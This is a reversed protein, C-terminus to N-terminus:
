TSRSQSTFGSVDDDWKGNERLLRSFIDHTYASYAEVPWVRMKMGAQRALQPLRGFLDPVVRRPVRSMLLAYDHSDSVFASVSPAQNLFTRVFSNISTDPGELEIGVSFLKGISFLSPNYQMTHVRKKMLNELIEKIKMNSIGLHRAYIGRELLELYMQFYAQSLVRAELANIKVVKESARIRFERRFAERSRTKSLSKYAKPLSFRWSGSNEDFVDLNRRSLMWDIPVINPIRDNLGAAIEPRMLMVQLFLPREEENRKFRSSWVTHKHPWRYASGLYLAYKLGLAKERVQARMLIGHIIFALRDKWPDMQGREKDDEAGFRPFRTPISDGESLQKAYKRVRDFWSPRLELIKYLGKMWPPTDTQGHLPLSGIELAENAAANFIRVYNPPKVGDRLCMIHTIILDKLIPYKSLWAHFEMPDGKPVTGLVVHAYFAKITRRVEDPFSIPVLSDLSADFSSPQYTFPTGGESVLASFDSIEPSPVELVAFPDQEIESSVRAALESHLTYDTKMSLLPAEYSKIVIAEHFETDSIILLLDSGETSNFLTYLAPSGSQNIRRIWGETSPPYM